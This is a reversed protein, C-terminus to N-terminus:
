KSVMLVKVSDDAIASDVYGVAGPTSAVWSIVDADSDLIKPPVGKGAFVIKAWYFKLKKESKKVVKSYFHDRSGNGKPLDALKLSIGGLKKIKGLWVRKAEKVSISGVGLSKNAIVVIDAVAQASGFLGGWFLFLVLLLPLRTNVRNKDIKHNQM